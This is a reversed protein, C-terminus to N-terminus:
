REDINLSGARIAKKDIDVKKDGTTVFGRLAEHVTEVTQMYTMVSNDRRMGTVTGVLKWTGDFEAYLGGGSNGGALPVTTQYMPTDKDLESFPSPIKGAFTGKTLSLTEAAPYGVVILDQGFKLKNAEDVSAIDVVAEDFQVDTMKVKLLAIDKNKITKVAKLYYVEEGIVTRLDKDYVQKRLNMTDDDADVCHAATLFVVDDKENKVLTMSCHADTGGYLKYTAPGITTIESAYAPMQYFAWAIGVALAGIIIPGIKSRAM